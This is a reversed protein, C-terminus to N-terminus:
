NPAAPVPESLSRPAPHPEDRPEWTLRGDLTVPLWRGVPRRWELADAVEMLLAGVSPWHGLRAGDGDGRRHTGVAGRNEGLRCDVLLADLANTDAFPIWKPHWYGGPLPGEAGAPALGSAPAPGSALALGDTRAPGGTSIRWAPAIDAVPMPRYGGPLVFSPYEPASGDHRLLSAILDDPFTVGTIRRCEAIAAPEAPPRLTTATRPAHTALWREIRFWSQEIHTAM